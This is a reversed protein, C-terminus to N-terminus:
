LAVEIRLTAIWANGLTPDFGPHIVHQLTPQVVLWPTMRARYTLEVAVESEELPANVQRFKEAARARILALGFVDEDRGPLLGTYICGASIAYNLPSVNGDTRGYRVFAALGQTPADAEYYLTHEALVYAGYATRRLPAGTVPDTDTLDDAKPNYRYFGLAFKDIPELTEERKRQPTAPIYKEPGVPEDVHHAEGPRYGFEAILMVGDGPQLRIHTGRPDAPDGPVGDTVAIQAYLTPDPQVRLRLGLASAPFISPGHPRQAAVEAGIGLAPHLFVASADTLYFESDIPYLGALVSAKNDWFAKQVWAHFLKVSNVAVEANNIGMFSGVLSANPKGGLNGLLHLYASSDPWGILKDGDLKLKVELMGQVRTGAALGGAANRVLDLKYSAELNAGQRYLATRAGHWDGTLTENNWDPVQEAAAAFSTSAYLLLAACTRPMMSPESVPSLTPAPIRDHRDVPASRGNGALLYGCRAAFPCGEGPSYDEVM